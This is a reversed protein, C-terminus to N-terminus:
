SANNGSRRKTVFRRFSDSKRARSSPGVTMSVDQVACFLFLRPFYAPLFWVLSRWPSVDLPEKIGYRDLDLVDRNNPVENLTRAARAAGASAWSTACASVSATITVPVRTVPMVAASLAAGIVTM